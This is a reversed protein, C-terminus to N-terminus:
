LMWAHLQLVSSNPHVVIGQTTLQSLSLNHPLRFKRPCRVTLNQFWESTEFLPAILIGVGQYNDLCHIVEPIINWPPFLYIVGWRNWDTSLADIAAAEGDPCPSVFVPLQSNDRTAFMDVQPPSPLLQCIWSFTTSDLSWETEIPHDRSGQDALVNLVGRLHQPILSISLSSCFELIESTLMLLSVSHTSGQNRICSIATTNDSLLLVSKGRVRNQFFTLSLLIAKLEKWNMSFQSVEPGWLDWVRSPLLVGCWGSLSADTMLQVSPISVHMQVPHSLFDRNQWVQLLSKLEQDLPIPLERRLAFSNKNMWILIPLLHLRGLHIYTAVFNLSGTLSKLERKTMHSSAFGKQCLCIISAIKDRPISLTLDQLNFM